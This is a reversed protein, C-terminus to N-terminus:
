IKGDELGGRTRGQLRECVKRLIKLLINLM